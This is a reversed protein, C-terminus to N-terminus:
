TLQKKLMDVADYIYRENLVEPTDLDSHYVEMLKDLNGSLMSIKRSWKALNVIPFGLRVIAPDNFLINQGNGLSDIIYLKQAGALQRVHAKEFARYGRGWYIPYDFSLEENGAIVFLTNKLTDPHSIILDLLVAVGSANDTAGVSISDYHCFVVTRPHKLNGVLINLSRHPVSTIQVLGKIVKAKCVLPLHERSIAVSPAFYHNSRSISTCCPNFNINPENIIKQSSILSSIISHNNDITGSVLSTAIAPIQITDALLIAKNFKPIKTNFYHKTYPIYHTNLMACILNAAQTEKEMQHHKIRTLSLIFQMPSFIQKM